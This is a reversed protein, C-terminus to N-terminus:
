QKTEKLYIKYSVFELIDKNQINILKVGGQMKSIKHLKNTLLIKSHSREFSLKQTTTEQPATEQATCPPKLKKTQALYQDDKHFSGFVM